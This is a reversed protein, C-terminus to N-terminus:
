GIDPESVATFNTVKNGVSISGTLPYLVNLLITNSTPVSQVIARQQDGSDLNIGIHDGAQFRISTDVHITLNGPIGAVSVSTILPGQFSLAPEPRPDPVNQNDKVGRVFDQPQREEFCEPFCVILGDWEKATDYNRVKKGCRECYRWFGGSIFTM